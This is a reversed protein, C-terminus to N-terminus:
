FESKRVLWYHEAAAVCAGTGAWRVYWTGTEDLTVDTYFVGKTSRVVEADTIYVLSTITGGPDKHKCTIATPDTTTSTSNTFTATVRIQDGVDYTNAM